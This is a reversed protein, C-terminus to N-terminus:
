FPKPTGTGVNVLWTVNPLAECRWTEPQEVIFHFFQEEYLTERVLNALALSRRPTANRRCHSRALQWGGGGQDPSHTGAVGRAGTLRRSIHASLFNVKVDHM